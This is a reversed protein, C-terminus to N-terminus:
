THSTDAPGAGDGKEDSVGATEPLKRLLVRRIMKRKVELIEMSYGEYFVTEHENDEPIRDLISILLGNLTDFDEMDDDKPELGTMESIEDLHAEGMVMYSDDSIKRILDEEKDFEDRINGVIEELIDEMAVIGATQGYEDIAIAMHVNREQMDRFLDDICQTDPVFFPKRAIDILKKNQYHNSAFCKVVEKLHIVGVINDIDGTYLPFRSFSQGAMFKMAKEIGMESNVAVIRTRHTMIDKAQKEDFEIINSIMTAEDAELVGQEHSENVMSMIEDETVIDAEESDVGFLKLVLKCGGELLASFPSLVATIMKMLGFMRFFYKESRKSGLRDPMIHAFLIILYVLAASILVVCLIALAGSAGAGVRGIFAQSLAALLAPIIMRAYFIGSCIWSIGIVLWTATYFLREKKDIFDLAEQARDSTQKDEDENDALKELYSESIEKFAAKALSVFYDILIFALIIFIGWYPHNEM